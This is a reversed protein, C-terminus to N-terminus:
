RKKHTICRKFPWFSIKYIDWFNNNSPWSISSLSLILQHFSVKKFFTVKNKGTIARQLNPWQFSTTFIGTDLFVIVALVRLSPWTISKYGPSIELPHTKAKQSNPCQFSTILSNRFHNFSPAEFKTLQYVIHLAIFIWHCSLFGVTMGRFRM